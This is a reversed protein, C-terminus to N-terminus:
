ETTAESNSAGLTQSLASLGPLDPVKQEVQVLADAQYIPTAFLAYAVSCVMFFGTIVLILWKNDVLTGLMAGLDIEDNEPAANSPNSMSLKQYPLLNSALRWDRRPRRRLGGAHLPGREAM